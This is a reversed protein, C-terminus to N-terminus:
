QQVSEVPKPALLDIVVPDTLVAAFAPDKKVDNM